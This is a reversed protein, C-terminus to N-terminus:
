NLEHSVTTRWFVGVRKRGIGLGWGFNVGIFEHDHTPLPDGQATLIGPINDRSVLATGTLSVM